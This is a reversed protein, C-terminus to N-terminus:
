HCIVLLLPSGRHHETETPTYPPCLTVMSEEWQPTQAAVKPSGTTCSPCRGVLSSNLWRLLGASLFFWNCKWNFNIEFKTTFEAYLINPKRLINEHMHFKVTSQAQEGVERDEKRGVAREWLETRKEWLMLYRKSRLSRRSRCHAYWSPNTATDLSHIWEVKAPCGLWSIKTM